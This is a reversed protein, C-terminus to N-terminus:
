PIYWTSSPPSPDIIVIIDNNNKHLPFHRYQLGVIVYADLAEYAKPLNLPLRWVDHRLAKGHHDEPSSSGLNPDALLRSLLLCNRSTGATSMGVSYVLRM